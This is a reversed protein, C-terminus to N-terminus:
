QSHDILLEAPTTGAEVESAVLPRWLYLSRVEENGMETKPYVSCSLMRLRSDAGYYAGFGTGRVAREKLM